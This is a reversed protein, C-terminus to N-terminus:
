DDVKAADHLATQGRSQTMGDGSKPEPNKYLRWEDTPERYKYEEFTLRWKRSQSAQWLHHSTLVIFGCAELTNYAKSVTDKNVRLAHAGDRVSLFVDENIRPVYHRQLEHLLARATCNLSRYAPSDFIEHPVMFFRGERRYAKKKSQGM